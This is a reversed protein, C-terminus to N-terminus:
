YLIKDLYHDEDHVDACSECIFVEQQQHNSCSICIWIAVTKQGTEECRKCYRYRPKNKGVVRPYDSDEEPDIITELEIRHQIWDGFDYVYKLADGPELGLSAVLVETAEGEGMPNISGLDVERFRRSKGRQLLKWFGSLHDWSDHKFANRMIGDFDALTQGGQIEIRRWLGKRHWLSVKFRYVQAAQKRSLSKAPSSTPPTSSAFMDSFVSEFPSSSDAYRIEYGMWRMRPENELIEYWHDAPYADPDKIRLYATPITAQGWVYERRAAELAQFLHDALAQNQQQIEARHRQRARAPEPKLRFRGNEWDLITILVSDGRRMNRKKYWGGLDFATLEPEQVGFVTNTKLEVSVPKVPINRGNADEFQFDEVPLGQKVMFQFTPTVLLWGKKIEQRTLTICFRVGHMAQQM